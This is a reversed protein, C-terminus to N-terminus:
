ELEEHLHKRKNDKSTASVESKEKEFEAVYRSHAQKCSLDLGNIVEFTRPKVGRALLVDHILRKSLLSWNKFTILWHRSMATLDESSILRDMRYFFM